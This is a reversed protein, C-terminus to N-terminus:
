IARSRSNRGHRVVNAFVGDRFAAATKGRDGLDQFVHAVAAHDHEDVCLLALVLAVEDNGRLHRRGVRDVEHRAVTAAQNAQREGAGAGGLELEFRHDTAVTRAVAGGEGLRDFRAVADGGADRRGVPRAGDGRRDVCRLAGGIDDRGAVHEREHRALAAHQDAGSMGFRRHIQRAKGTEIRRRHDALDHVVVAGHRAHRVEDGKRLPVTELDAGDLVEDGVPQAVLM